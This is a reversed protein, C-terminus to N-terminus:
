GNATVTITESGSAAPGGSGEQSSVTLILTATEGGDDPATIRLAGLDGAPLSAVGSSAVLATSGDFLTWGTPIGSVTAATFSDDGDGSVAIGGLTITSGPEESGSFSTPGSFSPAEAVGSATVTITESGSATPGGSGEQASVTLTLVATEGGDDPATIRLAGLDGAPLSAVGGTAVLAVSGDFLTWGSPIGSVTASTFSDDGDGSVAIGGLTIT